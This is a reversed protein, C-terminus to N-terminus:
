LRGRREGGPAVRVVGLWWRRRGEGGEGAGRRWRLVAESARTGALVATPPEKTTLPRPKRPDPLVRPRTSAGTAPAWSSPAHYQRDAFHLRKAPDHAAAASPPARSRGRAAGPGEQPGRRRTCRRPPQSATLGHIRCPTRRIRHGRPWLARTAAPRRGAASTAIACSSPPEHRYM